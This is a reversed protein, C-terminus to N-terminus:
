DRGKLPPHGRASRAAPHPTARVARVIEDLVGEPTEDVEHNWFRLVRYGARELALDRARDRHVHAEM